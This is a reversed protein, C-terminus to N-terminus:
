LNIYIKGNTYTVEDGFVSNNGCNGGYNNTFSFTAIFKDENNVTVNISPHEINVGYYNCVNGGNDTRLNFEGIITGAEWDGTHGLEVDFDIIIDSENNIKAQVEFWDPFEDDNVTGEFHKIVAINNFTYDTGNITVDIRSENSNHDNNNDTSCSIIILGIILILLKKTKRM